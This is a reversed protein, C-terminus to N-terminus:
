TALRLEVPVREAVAYASALLALTSEAGMNRNVDTAGLGDYCGGGQAMVEGRSNRGYYWGLAARARALHEDGAGSEWAVLHADVAAAAELPQQDYRARLGGRRYWGENGIPVFIGRDFTSRAYFSLTARGIATFREDDLVCGARLMAEPLRANDYTMADEFWEWEQARTADYREANAEALWRLATRYRQEPAAEAVHALGLSAYAQARPYRLWDLAALGRDFLRRCTRRWPENPAFRAGYGLAWLARGVSDQTGVDDLWARQYSMFNHFRGDPLQADHMFALYTSALRAPAVERPCADLRMLVVILARAVDDTCYGTARNPVNETAHQIVGVDDSLAILHDLPVLPM